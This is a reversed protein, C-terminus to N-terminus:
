YIHSGLNLGKCRFYFLTSLINGLCMKKKKFPCSTYTVCQTTQLVSTFKSFLFINNLLVLCCVLHMRPSPSHVLVSTLFDNLICILCPFWSQSVLSCPLDSLDSLHALLHGTPTGSCLHSSASHSLHYLFNRPNNFVV